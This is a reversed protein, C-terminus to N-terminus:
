GTDANGPAGRREKVPERLLPKPVAVKWAQLTKYAAERIYYVREGPDADEKHEVWQSKDDLLRKLLAANAESKFQALAQVGVQRLWDEKARVWVRGLVELRSNVPVGLTNADGSSGSRAAVERPMPLWILRAPGKYRRAAEVKVADVIKEPKKLVRFDMAFVPKPVRNRTEPSALELDAFLRLLPKGKAQGPFGPPIEDKWNGIDELFWLKAQGSKKWKALDAVGYDSQIVFMTPKTADRVGKLATGVKLTVAVWQWRSREEGAEPARAKCVFDAVSAVVVVESCATLGEISLPCYGIQAHIERSGVGSAVVLIAVLFSTKAPKM